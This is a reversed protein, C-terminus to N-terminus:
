SLFAKAQEVYCLKNGHEVVYEFAAKAEVKREEHLFVKGLMFKSRVKERQKVAKDFMLNYFQEQGEVSGGTEMSYEYKYAAYIEQCKDRNSKPMERTKLLENITDLCIKANAFDKKDIYYRCFNNYRGCEYANKTKKNWLRSFDARDILEKASEPEGDLLYGTSMNLIVMSKVWAVNRREGINPLMKELTEIFRRPDCDNDLIDIVRKMKVLAIANIVLAAVLIWVVAAALFVVLFFLPNEMDGLIWKLILLVYAVAPIGAAIHYLLKTSRFLLLM